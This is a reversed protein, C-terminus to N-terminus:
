LEINGKSADIFVHRQDVTFTIHGDATVTVKSGATNIQYVEDVLTGQRYYRITLLLGNDPTQQNSAGSLTTSLDVTFIGIPTEWNPSSAQVSIGETSVRFSVLGFIPTYTVGAACSTMSFALGSLTLAFVCRFFSDVM